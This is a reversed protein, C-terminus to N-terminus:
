DLKYSIIEANDLAESIWSTEDFDKEALKVYKLKAHTEPSKPMYLTCCDPAQQSSIEFTDIENARDIIEQKDSGILPRFVPLKVASDTAFLNDITQSAVQGLSEGTVLGKSDIRRALEEAIKYMFRRYLIIRLKEPCDQAIQKQYKGIRVIYLKDICGSKQFVDAIEKVLYESESSVVPAGSFHIATIKAGRHAVKWLAVPSDIGSSLLGVFMGSSGVPLGGVGPLSFGYVYASGEIVEVRVNVTPNKMQVRIAPFADSINGGVIKNIEMSDYEFSTHNRRASLKFSDVNGKDAGAEKMVAIGANIMDELTQPIKFGTSVRAVGPVKKVINCYKKSTNNDTNMPFVICIRGSIKTIKEYSIDNFNLIKKLNQLLRNEFIPRNKGKLGIEHYHILCIRKHNKSTM